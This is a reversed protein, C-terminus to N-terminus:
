CVEREENQITIESKCTSNPCTFFAEKKYRSKFSLKLGHESASPLGFQRTM